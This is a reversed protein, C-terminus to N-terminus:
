KAVDFVKGTKQDIYYGSANGLPTYRQQGKWYIAMCIVMAVGIIWAAKVISKGLQNTEM